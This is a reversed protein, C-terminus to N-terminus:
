PVLTDNATADRDETTAYISMTQDAYFHRTGTEQHLQPNAHISFQGTAPQTYTFRYGQKSTTTGDGILSDDLYPPSTTPAGLEMLSTPYRQNALVFFQCAKAMLRMSHLALQENAVIRARALQNFGVMALLAIVAVVLLIEVFSFGQRSLRRPLVM